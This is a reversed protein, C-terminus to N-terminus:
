LSLDFCLELDSQYTETLDFTKSVWSSSGNNSQDYLTNLENLSFSPYIRWYNLRWQKMYHITAQGASLRWRFWHKFITLQARLFLNWHFILIFEYMKMGSFVNSFATQSIAAIKERDWHPLVYQVVRWDQMTCLWYCTVNEDCYM